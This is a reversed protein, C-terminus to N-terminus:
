QIVKSIFHFVDIGGVGVIWMGLLLFPGMPIQHDFSKKKYKKYGYWPLVIVCAIWFGILVASFGGSIGLLFGAVAMIEIDGFGIWRGQSIVWLIFFPLPVLVLGFLHFGALISVFGLGVLPRLPIIKHRLDYVAIVIGLSVLVLWVILQFEHQLGILWATLAFFIGTALEVMPYQWSIKAKCKRCKGRQVLFSFLPFLEYWQLIKNCSLCKSRGGFGMGTHLRFIVVNLFSGVILGLIGIFIIILTNM